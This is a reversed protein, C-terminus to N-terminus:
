GHETNFGALLRSGTLTRDNQKPHQIGRTWHSQLLNLLVELSWARCWWTPHEFRLFKERLCIQRMCGRTCIQGQEYATTNSYALINPILCIKPQHLDIQHLNEAMNRKRSVFNLSAMKKIACKFYMKKPLPLKRFFFSNRGCSFNANSM